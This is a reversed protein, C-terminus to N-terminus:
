IMQSQPCLLPYLTGIYSSLGSERYTKKPIRSKFNIKTQKSCDYVQKNGICEGSFVLCFLFFFFHRM